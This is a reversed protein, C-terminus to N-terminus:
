ALFSRVGQTFISSTGSELMEDLQEPTLTQGAPLVCVAGFLCPVFM